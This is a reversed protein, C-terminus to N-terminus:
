RFIVYISLIIFIVAAGGWQAARSPRMDMKPNEPMPLPAALPKCATIALMLLVVGAFTIGMRDLFPLGPAFVSLAGYLAPSGLLAAIGAVPPAKPAALGVVFAALIGPSIYGQFEQIFKFIGGFRPDGLKPALWCGMFMFVVVAVRGVRVLHRESADPALYKRYLDMTFISSASNLMAALSSIIAGLIAALIFGRVGPPVLKRILLPFAADYKYGSLTRRELPDKGNWAAMVRGNHATVEAATEPHAAIWGSDMGVVLRSDPMARAEEFRELTAKNALVMQPDRAASEAMDSSFLNFAILGPVVIFLPSFIHIAGAMVLGRQGAALSKSGLTRQVIFQNLGWYYLNPIWLGLVLATWPLDPNGRPLVMHLKGGNLAFFKEVGSATDALGAPVAASGPMLEAVPTSGLRDFAFWAIILGGAILATGQLLDAWACAKLGGSTVYAAAIIGILWCALSLNLPQGFLSRGAFLTEMTLGGSYTVATLTVLVYIVVMSVAMLARALPHYRYELFEPITYIGSKLFAPLFTFAVIVLSISAIWAYSAIALGVPSAASGIMGVFQESSINAAILSIGILWWTLGRGALFYSESDREGRGQWMGVAVVVVLFAVFVVVDFMSFSYEM